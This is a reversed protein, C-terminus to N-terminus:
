FKAPMMKFLKWSNRSVKHISGGKLVIQRKSKKDVFYKTNFITYDNIQIFDLGKLKKYIYFLSCKLETIHNDVEFAFCDQSNGIVFVIYEYNIQM